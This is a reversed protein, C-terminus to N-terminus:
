RHFFDAGPKVAFVEVENITTPGVVILRAPAYVHMAGGRTVELRWPVPYVSTPRIGFYPRGTGGVGGIHVRHVFDAFQYLQRDLTYGFGCRKKKTPKSGSDRFPFLLIGQFRPLDTNTWNESITALRLCELFTLHDPFADKPIRRRGRYPAPKNM